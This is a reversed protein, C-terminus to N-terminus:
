NSCHSGALFLVSKNVEKQEGSDQQIKEQIIKGVVTGFISASSDKDLPRLTWDLIFSTETAPVFCTFPIPQTYKFPM